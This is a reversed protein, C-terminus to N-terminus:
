ASNSRPSACGRLCTPSGSPASSTLVQGSTSGDIPFRLGTAATVHGAAAAVVFEDGERLMIIMSRADVLARGRKVTLELVRGLDTEAGVAVAVAQAAELGRIARELEQRHTAGGPATRRRSGM